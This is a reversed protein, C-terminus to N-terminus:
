CVCVHHIIKARAEGALSLGARHITSQGLVTSDISTRATRPRHDSILQHPIEGSTTDVSWACDGPCTHSSSVCLDVVRTCSKHLMLDNEEDRSGVESKRRCAGQQEPGAGTAVRSIGGRAPTADRGQADGGANRCILGEPRVSGSRRAPGEM